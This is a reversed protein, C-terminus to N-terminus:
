HRIIWETNQIVRSNATSVRHTLPPLSVSSTEPWMIETLLLESCRCRSSIHTRTHSHNTTRSHSCTQMCMLSNANVAFTYSSQFHAVHTDTHTFTYTNPFTLANYGSLMSETNEGAQNRNCRSWMSSSNSVQEHRRCEWVEVGWVCM